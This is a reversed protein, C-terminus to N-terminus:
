DQSAFQRGTALDWQYWGGTRPWLHWVVPPCTAVALRTGDRSFAVARVTNARVEFTQTALTKVDLVWAQGNRTASGGGVALRGGDPAFAVCTLWTLPVPLTTRVAGTAPDLLEVTGALQRVVALSTGDPAFALAVVPSSAAPTLPRPASGDMDSLYVEGSERGVALMRSDPSLALCRFPTGLPTDTTRGGNALDWRSVVEDEDRNVTVVTNEDAFALFRLSSDAGRQLTATRGLRHADWVERASGGAAAFRRGSPSYAARWEYPGRAFVRSEVGTDPDFLRVDSGEFRHEVVLLAGGDPGYGLDGTTRMPLILPALGLPGVIVMNLFLLAQFFWRQEPRYLSRDQERHPNVAVRAELVGGCRPCALRGERSSLPWDRGLEWRHGQSCTLQSASTGIM